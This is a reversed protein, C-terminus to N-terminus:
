EDASAGPLNELRFHHLRGMHTALFISSGDASIACDPFASDDIAVTTLRKREQTDFVAIQGHLDGCVVFRGDTSLDCCAQPTAFEYKWEVAAGTLRTQTALNWVSYGESPSFDVARSGDDSMQLNSLKVGELPSQEGTQRNILLHDVVVIAGDSSVDINRGEKTTMLVAGNAPDFVLAEEDRAVIAVTGDGSVRLDGYFEKDPPWELVVNVDGNALDIRRISVGDNVLAFAADDSICLGSIYRPEDSVKFTSIPKVAELDWLQVEGGTPADTIGFRGDATMDVMRIRGPQHAVRREQTRNLDWIHILDDFSSTLARLGTIPRMCLSSSMGQGVQAAVDGSEIDFALIPGNRRYVAVIVHEGEPDFDLSRATIIEDIEFERILNGTLTDHVSLSYLTTYSFEAKEEAVLAMLGDDSLRLASLDHEVEVSGTEVDWIRLGAAGLCGALRSDDVFAVENVAVGVDVALTSIVNGTAADYIASSGRTVIALKSEDPSLAAITGRSYIDEFIRTKWLLANSELDWAFAEGTRSAIGILTRRSASLAIPFEYDDAADVFTIVDGTLGNRLEIGDQRLQNAGNHINAHLAVVTGASSTIFDGGQRSVQYTGVLGDGAQNLTARTARARVRDAPLEQFVQLEAETSSILRAQLQSRLEEPHLQLFWRSLVLADRVRQVLPDPHQDYEKILLDIGMEDLAAEIWEPDLLDGRTPLATADDAAGTSALCGFGILALVLTFPHFRKMAFGGPVAPRSVVRSLPIM